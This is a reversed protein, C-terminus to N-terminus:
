KKKDDSSQFRALTLKPITFPSKFSPAPTPEPAEQKKPSPTPVPAHHAQYQHVCEELLRDHMDEFYILANGKIDKEDPLMQYKAVGFLNGWQFYLTYPIGGPFFPAGTLFQNGHYLILENVTAARFQLFVEPKLQFSLHDSNEAILAQIRKQLQKVGAQNLANGHFLFSSESKQRSAKLYYTNIADLHHASLTKEHRYIFNFQDASLPQGNAFKVKISELAYDGHPKLTLSPKKM